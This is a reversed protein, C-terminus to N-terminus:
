LSAFYYSFKYVGLVRCIDYGLVYEKFRNRLSSLLDWMENEKWVTVDVLFGYGDFLEIIRLVSESEGLFEIVEALRRPQDERTRVFIRYYMLGLKGFDPLLGYGTIVRRAELRKLMRAATEPSVGLKGALEVSSARANAAILRLLREERESVFITPTPGGTVRYREPGAAPGEMLQPRHGHYAGMHVVIKSEEIRGAFPALLSRLKRKAEFVDRALTGVMVNYAGESRFLLICDPDLALRRMVEEEAREELRYTKLNAVYYNRGELRHFDILALYNQIAGREMARLHYHLRQPSIRLKKAISRLPARSNAGLVQLLRMQLATSPSLAM